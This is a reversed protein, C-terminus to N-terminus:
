SWISCVNVFKNIQPITEGQSYIKIQLLEVIM